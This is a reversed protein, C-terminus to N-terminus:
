TKMSVLLFRTHHNKTNTKKMKNNIRYRKLYNIVSRDLHSSNNDNECIKKSYYNIDKNTVKQTIFIGNTKLVRYVEEIHFPAYICTVVDFYETKFPLNKVDALKFRVNNIKSEELNDRANNIQRKSIDVGIAKGVFRSMSLLKEGRGTGVDLLVDNKTVHKKFIELFNWRGIRSNEDINSSHYDLM